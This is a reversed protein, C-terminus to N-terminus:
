ALTIAGPIKVFTTVTFGYSFSVLGSFSLAFTVLMVASGVTSRTIVFTTVPFTVTTLTVSETWNMMVTVFLPGQTAVLTVTTSFSLSSRFTVPM